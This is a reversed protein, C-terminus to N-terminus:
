RVTKKGPLNKLIFKAWAKRYLDREGVAVASKINVRKGKKRKKKKEGKSLKKIIVGRGAMAGGGKEGRVSTSGEREKKRVKATRGERQYSGRENYPNGQLTRKRREGSLICIKEM